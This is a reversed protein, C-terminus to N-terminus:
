ISSLGVYGHAVAHFRSGDDDDDAGDEDDVQQPVLLLILVIVYILFGSSDNCYIGPQFTRFFFFSDMQHFHCVDALRFTCGSM